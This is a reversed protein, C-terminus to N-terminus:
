LKPRRGGTKGGTLRRILAKAGILGGAFVAAPVALLPYYVTQPASLGLPTGVAPLLLLAALLVVSLLVPPFQSFSPASTGTSRVFGYLGELWLIVIASLVLYTNQQPMTVSQGAWVPIWSVLFAAALSLAGCVATRLTLFLVKEPVPKEGLRGSLAVFLVAAYGCVGFVPMAFALWDPMRMFFCLLMLLGFLVTGGIFFGTLARMRGESAKAARRMKYLDSLCSASATSPRIRLRSFMALSGNQSGQPPGERDEGSCLVTLCGRRATELTETGSVVLVPNLNEARCEAIADGVAKEDFGIFGGGRVMAQALTEGSKELAAPTVIGGAALGTTQLIYRYEPLDEPYFASVPVGDEAFREVWDAGDRGVGERLVLFGELILRNQVCHLVPWVSCGHSVYKKTDALLGDAEEQTLPIMTMGDKQRFVSATRFSALRRSIQFFDGEPDTSRSAKMSEASVDTSFEPVKLRLDGLPYGSRIVWQLLESAVMALKGDRIHSAHRALGEGLVACAEALSSNKGMEQEGAKYTVHCSLIRLIHPVGDTLVSPGDIMLMGANGLSELAECDRIGVDACAESLQKAYVTECLRAVADLVGPTTLFILSFVAAVVPVTGGSSWNMLIGIGAAAISACATVFTLKKRTGAASRCAKSSLQALQRPVLGNSVAETRDGTAYAIATAQGSIVRGCAGVTCRVGAQRSVDEEVALPHFRVVHKKGDQSLFLQEITFDETASVIRADAPIVDGCALSLLDGALVDEAPVTKERGDRIVRSLPMTKQYLEHAIRHARRSLICGAALWLVGFVLMVAGTVYSGLFLLLVGLFLYACAGGDLIVDGIIEAAGPVPHFFLKNKWGANYRKEATNGDLGETRSTGLRREMEDLSFGRINVQNDM